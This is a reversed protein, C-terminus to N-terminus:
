KIMDAFDRSGHLTVYKKNKIAIYNIKLTINTAPIWCLSEIM